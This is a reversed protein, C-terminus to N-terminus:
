PQLSKLAQTFEKFSASDFLVFIIRKLATKSSCYDFVARTMVRACDQISFDFIRSSIVPLAVANLQNEDALKLSSLTANQLKEEEEAKPVYAFSLSGNRLQYALNEADKFDTKM